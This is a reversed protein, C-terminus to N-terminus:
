VSCRWKMPLLFISSQQSLPLSTQKARLWMISIITIIASKDWGFQVYHEWLVIAAENKKEFIIRSKKWERGAGRMNMNESMALWRQRDRIEKRNESQLVEACMQSFPLKANGQITKHPFENEFLSYCCVIFVTKFRFIFPKWTYLTSTHWSKDPPQPLPLFYSVEREVFSLLM